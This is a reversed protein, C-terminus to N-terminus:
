LFDRIPKPKQGRRKKGTNKSKIHPYFKHLNEMEQTDLSSDEPSDKVKVKSKPGQMMVNGKAEQQKRERKTGARVTKGKPAPHKEKLLLFSCTLLYCDAWFYSKFRIVVDAM